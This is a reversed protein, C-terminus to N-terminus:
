CVRRMPPAVVPNYGENAAIRVKSIIQDCIYLRLMWVEGVLIGFKISDTRRDFAHDFVVDDHAPWAEYRLMRAAVIVEATYEYVM